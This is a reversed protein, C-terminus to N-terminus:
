DRGDFRARKCGTQLHEDSRPRDCGKGLSTAERFGDEPRVDAIPSHWRQVLSQGNGGSPADGKVPERCSAASADTGLDERGVGRGRAAGAISFLRLCRCEVGDYEFADQLSDEFGLAIARCRFVKGGQGDIKIVTGHNKFLLVLGGPAKPGRSEAVWARKGVLPTDEGAEPLPLTM